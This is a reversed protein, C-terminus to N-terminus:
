VADNELVIHYHAQGQRLKEIAQNVQSIPTLVVGPELAAYGMIKSNSM